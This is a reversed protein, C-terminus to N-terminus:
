SGARMGYKKKFVDAIPADAPLHLEQRLQNIKGLADEAALKVANGSHFLSRSGLTAMDFPTVDTDSHVVTVAETPIRLVEAAIQAMATDSAQGMDVCSTYVTCSGDANVNLAALSATVTTCESVSTVGNSMAVRPERESKWLPLATLSAASSASPFILWSLCSSCRGASAGIASTNLFFYPMRAPETIPAPFKM